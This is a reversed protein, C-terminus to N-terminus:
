TAAFIPSSPIKRAESPPMSSTAQQACARRLNKSARDFAGRCAL